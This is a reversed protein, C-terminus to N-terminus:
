MCMHRFPWALAIKGATLIPSEQEYFCSNATSEVISTFYFDNSCLNDHLAGVSIRDLSRWQLPIPMVTVTVFNPKVTTMHSHESFQNTSGVKLCRFFCNSSASTALSNRRRGPFSALDGGLIISVHKWGGSEELKTAVSNRGKSYGVSSYVTWISLNM